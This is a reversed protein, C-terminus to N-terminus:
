AQDSFIRSLDHMQLSTAPHATIVDNNKEPVANRHSYRYDGLISVGAATLTRGVWRDESPWDSKSAMALVSMAKRSLWYGAGGHAHIGCSRGVYDHQEFGSALLRPVNVYTDDDCKFLYDYGQDFAFQCMAQVKHSLFGDPCDLRIEDAVTTQATTGLFFFYSVPSECHRLWTDRCAQRKEVNEQRSPIAIVARM